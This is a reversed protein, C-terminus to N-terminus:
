RGLTLRTDLVADNSLWPAMGTSIQQLWEIFAAPHRAGHVLVDLENAITIHCFGCVEAAAPVVHVRTFRNVMVVDSNPCRFSPYSSERDCSGYLYVLSEARQGILGVLVHRERTTLLSAAFGDTGYTAHCLGALCIDRDLGWRCLRDHVRVLHELLSGGPHTISEAGRERLWQVVSEAEGDVLVEPETLRRTGRSSNRSMTTGPWWIV